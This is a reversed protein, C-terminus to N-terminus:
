FHTDSEPDGSVYEYISDDASSLTPKFAVKQDVDVYDDTDHNPLPNPLPERKRGRRKSVSPIVPPIVETSLDQAEAAKKQVDEPINFRRATAYENAYLQSDVPQLPM